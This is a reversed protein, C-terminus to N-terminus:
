REGLHFLTDGHFDRSGALLIVAGNHNEDDLVDFLLLLGVGCM